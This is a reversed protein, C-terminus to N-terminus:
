LRTRMFTFRKKSSLSIFLSDDAENYIGTDGDGFALTPTIPENKLLLRLLFSNNQIIDRIGFIIRWM